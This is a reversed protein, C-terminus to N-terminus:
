IGDLGLRLDGDWERCMRITWIAEGRGILLIANKGWKYDFYSWLRNFLSKVSNITGNQDLDGKGENSEMLSITKRRDMGGDPM